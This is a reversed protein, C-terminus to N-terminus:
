IEKAIYVTSGGYNNSVAYFPVAQITVDDTMYKEATTLTQAEVKPTVSYPGDYHELGGPTARIIPAVSISFTSGQGVRVHLAPNEMVRVRIM